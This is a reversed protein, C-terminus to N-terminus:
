GRGSDPLLYPSPNERAELRALIRRFTEVTRWHHGDEEPVGVMMEFEMGIWFDM